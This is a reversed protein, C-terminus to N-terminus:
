ILDSFSFAIVESSIGFLLKLVGNQMTIETNNGIIPTINKRICGWSLLPFSDNRAPMM